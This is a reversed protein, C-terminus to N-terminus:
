KAPSAQILLALMEPSSQLGEGRCRTCAVTQRIREQDRGIGITGEGQGPWLHPIKLHGGPSPVACILPRYSLNVSVFVIWLKARLRDM